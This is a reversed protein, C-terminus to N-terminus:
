EREGNKKESERVLRKKCEREGVLRKCESQVWNCGKKPMRERVM